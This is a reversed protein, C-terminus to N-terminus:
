IRAHTGDCYPLNGSKRCGCWAVKGVKPEVPMPSVGTGKHTGDCYPQNKSEGCRCYFKRSGDEECLYPGKRLGSM